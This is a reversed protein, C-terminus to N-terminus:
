YLIFKFPFNSYINVLVKFVKDTFEYFLQWIEAGVGFWSLIIVAFVVLSLLNQIINIVKGGSSGYRNLVCMLSNYGDLGPFPLINLAILSFSLWCFYELLNFYTSTSGEAGVYANYIYPLLAISMFLLMTIFNFLIGGLNILLQQYKGRSFVGFPGEYDPVIYGGFPLWGLCYQTTQREPDILIISNIEIKKALEIRSGSKAAAYAPYDTKGLQISLLCQSAEVAMTEDEKIGLEGQIKRSIIDLRRTLPDYKLFTFFINFFLSVRKVRVGFARSFTYHGLEHVIIAVALTILFVLEGM